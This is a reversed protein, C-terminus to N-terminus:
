KGELKDLRATLEQIAKILVVTLKSYHIGLPNGNIDRDVFEPYIENVHEAILGIDAVKSAKWDFRVPQLLQVTQLTSEIPQVNEKMRITSTETLSQATVNGTFTGSGSVAFSGSITHQTSTVNWNLAPVRFKTINSNGLTIENDVTTSSAQASQGIIINNAGATLSSGATHGVAVNNSGSVGTLASTGLATNNGGATVSSMASWGIATNQAGATHSYLAQYGIATNYSTSGNSNLASGGIAINQQGTNSFLTTYGIAINDSTSTNTYLANTGIAINNTGGQNANLSQYGIAVNSTGTTNANLASVGLATNTAINNNGCSILSGSVTLGTTFRGNGVVHLNHTPASTNIGVKGAGGGHEYVSGSIMQYPSLEGYPAHM